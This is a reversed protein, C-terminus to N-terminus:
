NVYNFEGCHSKSKILEEIMTFINSNDQLFLRLKNINDELYEFLEHSKETKPEEFNLKKM